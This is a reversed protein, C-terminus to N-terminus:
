NLKIKGHLRINRGPLLVEDKKFSVHNRVDEDLLNEGKLGITLEPVLGGSGLKIVYSLEASLLKYGSTETELEALKDQRFAHLFGVRAFLSSDRYYLGSGIRYPPIRPVNAGDAFTARVADFQGDIGVVGRWIPLVDLEGQLEVGRFTADRQSYVIQRLEEGDGSICTTFEEGCTNGTFRKFIFGQFETYYVSADFRMAGRARKLGIEATRAREKVLNPDGIEFTKTAEHPGKSFLEAVDPAREVYQLTARAVIGLPLEYLAGFSASRPIFTRGRQMEEPDVGIPLFDAPFIAATGDVEVREIRGALQLKLKRTAQLEEFVFGATSRTTNPALLEGGEGGASLERRGAQVGIAGSLQGLVTGFPMHQLEIRGERERNRFTSGIKDAGDTADFAIEDHKYASSGLWFRIADIGLSRPRWEGRSTWKQQALDIRLREEAAETGPIGYLSNFTTYAIGFFGQSGVLSGGLSYGDQDVFSNRQRGQPTDYDHARRHHADAHVAFMGAGATASAGKEHGRSVSDWAGKTEVAIGNAPIREPIRSNTANVVGGIAQSGYRLTAPGRVVEIQQAAFPDIPVAHDESLASVDHSGLGNEQVRVRFNDLGRIIPRSAGPAFTSATIGPRTFLVDGLTAAQTREIEPATVVTVPVFADEVVVTGPPLAAQAPAAAPAPPAPPAAVPPPAPLAAAPPPASQAAAPTPAPPRVVPSPTTVIIGPLQTQAEARTAAVSTLGTICVSFGGAAWIGRRM